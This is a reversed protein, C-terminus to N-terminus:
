WFIDHIVDIVYGSRVDVLIADNYFRVWRYPGYAPPLRYAWPDAIWYRAGFLPGALRAGIGFRRYGNSWGYPAYYRPLRFAGRNYSRYGNWDYRRDNRWDGRWRNNDVRRDDRGAGPRRWDDRGYAPRRDDRWQGVARDDGRVVARSRGDDNRRDAADARLRRPDPSGDGDRDRRTMREAGGREQGSAQREARREARRARQEDTLQREARPRDGRGSDQASAAAPVMATAALLATLFQKMM